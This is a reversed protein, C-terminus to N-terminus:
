IILGASVKENECRSLSLFFNPMKFTLDVFFHTTLGFSKIDLGSNVM